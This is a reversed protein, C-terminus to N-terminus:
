SCMYFDGSVILWPNKWFNNISCQIHILFFSNWHQFHWPLSGLAPFSENSFQYHAKNFLLFIFPLPGLYLITTYLTVSIFFMLHLHSYASARCSHLMFFQSVRSEFLHHQPVPPLLLTEVRITSCLRWSGLTIILLFVQESRSTQWEFLDMKTIYWPNGQNIGVQLSFLPRIM